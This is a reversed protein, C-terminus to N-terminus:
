PTAATGLATFIDIQVRGFDRTVHRYRGPDTPDDHVPVDLVRSAAPLL